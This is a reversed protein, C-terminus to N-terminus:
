ESPSEVLGVKTIGLRACTEHLRVVDDYPVEPSPAVLVITNEATAREVTELLVTDLTALDMGISEGVSAVTAGADNLSLAIRLRTPQVDAPAPAPGTVPLNTKLFWEPGLFATSAMFFILIVMVVDVMPTMNPGYHADYLARANRRRYSGSM